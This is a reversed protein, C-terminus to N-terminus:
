LRRVQEIAEMLPETEALLIQTQPSNHLADLDHQASELEPIYPTGPIILRQLEAATLSFPDSISQPM